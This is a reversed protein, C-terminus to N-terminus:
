HTKKNKNFGEEELDEESAEDELEQQNEMEKDALYSAELEDVDMKDDAAFKGKDSVNGKDKSIDFDKKSKPKEFESPNKEKIENQNQHPSYVM